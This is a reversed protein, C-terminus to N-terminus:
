NIVITTMMGGFDETGNSLENLNTSYLVYTGPEVDTTDILVDVAEGGGLTVSNTEYYLEDGDPGRLIHAGTGVVRMKLGTTALTYFQTVNLNSIRLLIRDGQNAEVASSVVQSSEMASTVGSGEKDGGAVVPIPDPNVTDPYGRGNLLPYDDHMEAFPLPQVELSATHFVSDFSGIQIPVEVDYGTSGDGDNYVFRGSPYLSTANAAQNQIPHVYLNGLMGMQMHETAEVHCHYMFTGPEQINYYYTLSFGMNIAISSDPVGDFVSAANPFGHFHITHPDFLDPRMLMGVNTLTVFAQEGQNFQMTPAPFQANLIGKDIALNSAQPTVDNFGFGYLERGDAMNAFGDGAALHKCVYPSPPNVWNRSDADIYGEGADLQGNRNVDLPCQVYSTSLPHSGADLRLPFVSVGLVAGGADSTISVATAAGPQAAEYEFLWVGGSVNTSAVPVGDIVLTLVEGDNGFGSLIYSATIADWRAEVVAIDRQLTVLTAASAGSDNASIYEFSTTGVFELEPTYTFSGDPLLSVTGGTAPQSALIARRTGFQNQNPPPGDNAFVGPAGVSFQNQTNVAYPGDPNTNPTNANRVLLQFQQIDFASSPDTVTVAFNPNGAGMGGTTLENPTWTLLGAASIAMDGPLADATCGGGGM